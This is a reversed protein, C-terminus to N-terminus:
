KKLYVKLLEFVKDDYEGPIVDALKDLFYEPEVDIYVGANAGKGDYQLLFKLKGDKFELSLDAEESVEMEALPKKEETM